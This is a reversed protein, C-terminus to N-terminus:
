KGLFDSFKLKIVMRDDRTQGQERVAVIGEPFRYQDGTVRMAEEVTHRLAPADVLDRHTLLMHAPKILHEDPTIVQLFSRQCWWGDRPEAGFEPSSRILKADFVRWEHHDACHDNGNVKPGIFEGYFCTGASLNMTEMMHVWAPHQLADHIVDAMISTIKSEPRRGYLDWGSATRIATVQTGNLKPSVLWMEAPEFLAVGIADSTPHTPDALHTHPDRVYATPISPFYHRQPDSM